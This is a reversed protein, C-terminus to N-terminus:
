DDRPNWSRDEWRQNTDPIQGSKRWAYWALLAMIAAGGYSEIYLLFWFLALVPSLLILLFFLDLALEIILLIMRM